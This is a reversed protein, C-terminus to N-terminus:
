QTGFFHSTRIQDYLRDLKERSSGLFDSWNASNGPYREEYSSNALAQLIKSAEKSEQVRSEVEILGPNIYRLFIIGLTVRIRKDNDELIEALQGSFISLGVPLFQGNLLTDLVSTVIDRSSASANNNRFLEDLLESRLQKCNEDKLYEGLFISTASSSRLSDNIDDNTNELELLQRLVGRFIQRQDNYCSMNNLFIGFVLVCIRKRSEIFESELLIEALTEPHEL